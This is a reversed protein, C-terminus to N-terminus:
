CSFKRETFSYFHHGGTEDMINRCEVIFHIKLRISVKM